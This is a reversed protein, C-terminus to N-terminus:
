LGGEPRGPRPDGPGRYRVSSLAEQVIEGGSIEDLEAEPTLVVRHAWVYRALDRVDDPRVYDRGQLLAQAKCARMLALSARPSIGLRARDHQRTFAALAVIYDMLPEAVYIQAAM